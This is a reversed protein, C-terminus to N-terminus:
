RKLSNPVTGEWKPLGVEWWLLLSVVSNIGHVIWIRGFCRHRRCGLELSPGRFGFGSSRGRVGSALGWVTVFFERRMLKGQQGASRPLAPNVPSFVGPPLPLLGRTEPGKETLLPCPRVREIARRQRENLLLTQPSAGDRGLRSWAAGCSAPSQARRAQM